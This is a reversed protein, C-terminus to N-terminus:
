KNLLHEAVTKASKQVLKLFTDRMTDQTEKDLSSKAKMLEMFKTYNMNALDDVTRIDAEDLIGFLADVFVERQKEDMEGIWSKLAKDVLVSKGDVHNLHVLTTGRVEWSMVDHQGAGSGSSKVVEYEEEHEFLMGVISSEPVISRIRDTLNRYMGPDIMSDNFGPGDNSYIIDIRDQLKRESNVAAYVALNGGKSHGMLRLPLKTQKAVKQLYQVSEEQGPTATLFSMNFDEKWGVITSDTGSYVVNCFGDGLEVTMACFQSQEDLRIDNIYNALRIDVNALTKASEGFVVMSLISLGAGFILAVIVPRLCALVSQLLSIDKYKRYIYSLLSVFFLAPTICGLTAIIAGPVQAIRLGVFTASNVAIPGPTMEAITILDTFEQMTLWGHQEVVQSQILPMAAYGGGVSFMGVQLFSLFLQLYIM